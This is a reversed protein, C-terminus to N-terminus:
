QETQKEIVRPLKATDSPPRAVSVHDTQANGSRGPIRQRKFRDGRAHTELPGLGSVRRGEGHEKEDGEM